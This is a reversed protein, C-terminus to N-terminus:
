LRRPLETTTVGRGAGAEPRVPATAQTRVYMATIAAALTMIVVQADPSIHLKFGLGLSIVAKVLGLVFASVGDRTKIAVILGAVALAVGNLAAQADPTLKLLLGAAMVLASILALWLPIERGFIRM